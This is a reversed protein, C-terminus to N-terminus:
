MRWRIAEFGEAHQVSAKLGMLKAQARIYDIWGPSTRDCESRYIKVLEIKQELTDCIDVFFRPDFCDDSEYWNSRYMLLRPVHRCCHLAARALARHDHHVDGTWHTLVLDPRVQDLVELLKRNLPEAFELEFTAFDATILKAGLFEAARVAEARATEDARVLDGHQDHYGSNSATFVTINHGQKKWALLSGGGGLEIDDCHAGLALINM